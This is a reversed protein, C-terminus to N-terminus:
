KNIILDTNDKTFKINSNIDNHWKILIVKWEQTNVIIDKWELDIGNISPWWIKCPIIKLFNYIINNIVHISEKYEEFKNNSNWWLIIADITWEKCKEKIENLVKTLENEFSTKNIKSSLFFKPNQHTLISLKKWDIKSEWIIVIWTCNKYDSSYKNNENLKSIVFSWDTVSNWNNLIKKLNNKEWLYFDINEADKLTNNVFDDIITKNLFGISYEWTKKIKELINNDEAYYIWTQILNM